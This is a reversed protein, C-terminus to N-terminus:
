DFLGQAPAVPDDLFTLDVRAVFRVKFDGPRGKEWGIKSIYNTKFVTRWSRNGENVAYFAFKDDCM